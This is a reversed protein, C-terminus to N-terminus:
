PRGGPLPPVLGDAEPAEALAEAAAVGRPRGARVWRAYLVAAVVFAAALSALPTVRALNVALTLAVAGAGGLNVVIGWPRAERRAFTAMALMGALFAVFVAVAYFLM